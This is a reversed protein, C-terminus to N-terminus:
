STKVDRKVFTVAIGALVIISGTIESLNLVEGLIFAAIVATAVTQGLLAVSTKTAPLYSIAHNITLWGILQCVLGMGLFNLWTHPPFHVMETHQSIGLLMLYLSSSLMSYFMFTIISVRRLVNKTLLIYTAYLMSALIAYLIGANLQLTLLNSFGVLIITGALAIFTGLWFWLGSRKRLFLLSFLGVWVPALNAMLTSITAGIKLISINWVSIDSAFVVGALLAIGLDTRRINIKKSAIVYVALPLWAIFIRYFGSTVPAAGALKVFIASFAICFIGIILSLKPNM